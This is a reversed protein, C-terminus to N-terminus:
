SVDRCLLTVHCQPNHRLTEGIILKLFHVKTLFECPQEQPDQATDQAARQGGLQLGVDASGSGPGGPDEPAAVDSLVLLCVACSRNNGMTGYHHCSTTM